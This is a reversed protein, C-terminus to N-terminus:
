KKPEIKPSKKIEIKSSVSRIQNKEAESLNEFFSKPDKQAELIMKQLVTEDGNAKQVLSDMIQASIEYIDEKLEPSSDTLHDIQDDVKQFNPYKKKGDERSKQSRLEKKVSDLSEESDKDLKATAVSCLTTISLLIKFFIMKGDM